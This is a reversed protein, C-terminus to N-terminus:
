LITNNKNKHIIFVGECVPVCWYNVVQKDRAWNVCQPVSHLTCTGQSDESSAEKKKKKWDNRPLVFSCFFCAYCMKLAEKSSIPRIFLFTHPLRLEATLGYGLQSFSNRVTYSKGRKFVKTRNIHYLIKPPSDSNLPYCESLKWSQKLKTSSRAFGKKKKKKSM